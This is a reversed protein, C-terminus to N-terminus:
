VIERSCVIEKTRKCLTFSVRLYSLSFSNLECIYIYIYRDGLESRRDFPIYSVGRSGIDPEEEKLSQIIRNPDRNLDRRM